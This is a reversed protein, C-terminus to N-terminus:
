YYYAWLFCMEDAFDLGFGVDEDRTNDYECSLRLGETSSLTLPPDFRDLPPNAWDDAEHLMETFDDESTGRHITSYVGLGHTHSTLGFIRAGDPVGHFSHVETTTRAPLFLGMVGTFLFQVPMRETEDLPYFDFDVEAHIDIPEGTYNVEHIEIRIRQHPTFVLAADTPYEISANVTEAIFVASAGDAFPQCPTPTASLPGTTRYVIMHHSGTPLHTRIGRVQRAVENGADVTICVTREEGLPLPDPGFTLHVSEGPPGTDVGPPTDSGPM